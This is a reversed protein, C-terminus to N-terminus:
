GEHEKEGYIREVCAHLIFKAMNLKSHLIRIVSTQWKKRDSLTM